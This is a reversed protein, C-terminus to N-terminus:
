FWEPVARNYSPRGRTTRRLTTEAEVGEAKVRMVTDADLEFKGKVRDAVIAALSIFWDAPIDSTDVVMVLDDNALEALIADLNRDVIISRNLNKLVREARIARAAIRAALDPSIEFKEKCSEAAIDALSPFWAAPIATLDVTAVMRANLEGMISPLKEDVVSLRTTTKLEREAKQADAVVRALVDPSLSFKGKVSESVIAAIQSFYQEPVTSVPVTVAVIMRASLDALIADIKEDVIGAGGFNRLKAEAAVALAPLQSPASEYEDRAASALITSLAEFYAAPIANPNAVTVVARANLDSIVTVVHSDIINSDEASLTQGASLVGLVGAANAVLEVRTRAAGADAQRVIGLNALAETVLDARTRTAGAYAQQIVGLSALTETVLGARTRVAGTDAQLIIGLNGLAETVLDARAYPM